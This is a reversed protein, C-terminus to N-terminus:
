LDVVTDGHAISVTDRVDEIGGKRQLYVIGSCRNKPLEEKCYFDIM